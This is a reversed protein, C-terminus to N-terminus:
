QLEGYLQYHFLSQESLRANNKSGCLGYMSKIHCSQLGLALLSNPIQVISLDMNKWSIHINLQASIWM